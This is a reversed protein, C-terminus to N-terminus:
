ICMYAISSTTLCADYHERIAAEIAEKCAANARNSARYQELEGYKNAHSGTNQYIPINRQASEYFAIDHPNKEGAENYVLDDVAKRTKPDTTLVEYAFGSSSRDPLEERITKLFEAADTFVQREGNAYTARGIIDSM